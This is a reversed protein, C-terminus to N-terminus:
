KAQGYDDVTAVTVPFEVPLQGFLLRGADAAAQRIANEVAAAQDTPCHVVIEDHMFFVMHASDTLWAGGGLGALANRLNAMWCLAWEAASGQVVFNRTFRGWSRAQGRARSAHEETSNEGYADSQSQRWAAGPRPSSRGLRTTVVEGREGARAAEEVLAIAAPYARALTPMLRGSEGTTAGYMAGLMAVKAQDRTAVAGSAVIGAYLDQGAGAEAMGRDGSLAALIRPELQSADAVVLKWGPDAVVASRVKKPLQLAGGGGTSAWRGTVVGGPVYEPHFRGNSVNTDLWHWGNASLLRALKKYELLPAIAPHTIKKLEWSRTSKAMVGAVGLAKLLEPPSDPNLNPSELEARLVHLVASLKNPREGPEARPGLYNELLADHLDARWPLGAFQMEAAVLSGASEAALLLGLRASEASGAIAEQQLAFEAVVDEPELEVQVDFDFLADDPEAAVTGVTARDWSSLSSAAIRSGATLASNRIIAHSLRLDVCREVRVGSALLGPYWHTTDDWVWRPHQLELEAVVGPLDAESVARPEGDFPQLVIGGDRRLLAIHM